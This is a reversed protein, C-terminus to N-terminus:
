PNLDVTPAATSDPFIYQLPEVPHANYRIEYHLHPASSIGSNGSLAVIEGFEVRDGQEFMMAGNHGYVTEYGNGHDLIIMNGLAGDWGAFAVVGAATAFVPSGERGAVDLGFHRLSVNEQEPMFGRSPRGRMPVGVPRNDPHPSLESPLPATAVTSILSGPHPAASDTSDASIELMPSVPMEGSAFALSDPFEIGLMECLQRTFGRHYNLEERLQSVELSYVTLRMNETTLEGIRESKSIILWTLLISSFALLGLLGAAWYLLRLMLPSISWQYSKGSQDNVVLLNIRGGSAM